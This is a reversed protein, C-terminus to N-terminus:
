PSGLMSTMTDTVRALEARVEAIHQDLQGVTLRVAACELSSCLDRLPGAYVNASAGALQHAARALQQRDGRLHCDRIKTLLEVSNHVYSQVLDAAFEVDGGTLERLGPLDIPAPRPLFDPTAAPLAPEIPSEADAALGCPRVPNEGLPLM